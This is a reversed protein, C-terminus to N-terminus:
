LTGSGASMEFSELWIMQRSFLEQFGSLVASAVSNDRLRLAIMYERPQM